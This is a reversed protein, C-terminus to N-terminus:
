SISNRFFTKGYNKLEDEYIDNVDPYMPIVNPICPIFNGKPCYEDICRRVEARIIDEDAEPMDIIQADIGGILAMRGQLIDQIAPINNQPIVGQWGDIGMEAMDEVIPECICDSHHLYIVGKSKVFDVIKQQNPKIIQRWVDPPLFLNDKNGWDDHFLIVDPKINHIVQRLHELKWETIAELLEFMDKPELMYNVLADQFGMLYHTREFLGSVIMCSVLYENRDVKSAHEIAATWDHGELPPLILTERWKKIDKIAKNEDNIFPNAIKHEPILKWNVGWQDLFEGPVQEGKSTNMIPDLVFTNGYFNGDFAEWPTSIWGPNDNRLLRIWNEKKTM